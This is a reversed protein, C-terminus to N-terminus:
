LFIHIDSRITKAYYNSCLQISGLSILIANSHVCTVGASTRASHHLTVSEGHITCKCTDANLPKGAKYNVRTNETTGASPLCVDFEDVSDSDDGQEHNAIDNQQHTSEEDSQTAQAIERM